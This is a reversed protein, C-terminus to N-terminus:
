RLRCSRPPSFKLRCSDPYAPFATARASTILWQKIMFLPTEPTLRDAPPECQRLTPMQTSYEEAVLIKHRPSCQFSYVKFPQLACSVM